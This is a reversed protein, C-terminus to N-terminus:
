EKTPKKWNKLTMQKARTVTLAEGPADKTLTTGAGLTAGKGINIPAVLQTGSGIFAGDQIITPFKNVGDYNCTITGAGINVGVGIEADGIYSLHNVKSNDGVKSKKIEVFNGVHVSDGLEAGPRLRAFPGVTCSEGIICDELVCNAKITVNNGIEVNTIVCNPGISVNEGITVEGVFVNNIDIFSDTGDVKVSGRIDIRNKDALTIGSAMLEEALTTQYYRELENLQARSNVGMVEYESIPQTTLVDVGDDVAMEIIDTLYYEGQANINNIKGLWKKLHQGNVAMIGTNVENILLEAYTADKQEVIRKVSNDERIIRGYGIPNELNITLLAMQKPNVLAVLTNLTAQKILPVDGYLILVISEDKIECITEKVAHGTGLQEKQEIWTVPIALETEIVDAGNHGYVIVTKDTMGVVSDVVRSVMPKGAIQHLVKAKSSKMRTGQGAALIVTTLEM